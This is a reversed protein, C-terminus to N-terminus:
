YQQLAAQQTRCPFCGCQRGWMSQGRKQRTLVLSVGKLKHLDTMTEKVTQSVDNGYLFLARKTDEVQLL